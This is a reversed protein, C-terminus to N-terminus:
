IDAAGGRGGLGAALAPSQRLISKDNLLGFLCMQIHADIYRLPEIRDDICRDLSNVYCSLMVLPAHLVLATYEADMPSFEGRAVGKELLSVIHARWPKIISDNYFRTLDPFNCAETIILKPIGGLPTSGVNKWWQHFDKRLLEAISGTHEQERQRLANILPLFTENVVAKFLEEKNQYYLYLTGKSVGARAAVEELKTTAFGKETFVSVAACLLEAPRATKRRNWRKKTTDLLNLM